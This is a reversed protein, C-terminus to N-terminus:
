GKRPRSGQHSARCTNRCTHSAKMYAGKPGATGDACVAKQPGFGGEELSPSRCHRGFELTGGEHGPALHWQRGVEDTWRQNDNSRADVECLQRDRRRGLGKSPRSCRYPDESGLDSGGISFFRIGDECRHRPLTEVPKRVM